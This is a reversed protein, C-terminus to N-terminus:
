VATGYKTSAQCSFVFKGFGKHCDTEQKLETQGQKKFVTKEQVEPESMAKMVKPKNCILVM